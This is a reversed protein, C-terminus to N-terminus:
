PTGGTFDLRRGEPSVGSAPAVGADGTITNHATWGSTAARDTFVLGKKKSADNAGV